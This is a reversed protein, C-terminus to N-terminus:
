SSYSWAPTHQESLFTCNWDQKFKIKVEIMTWIISTSTNEAPFATAEWPSSRHISSHCPRLTRSIGLKLSSFFIIVTKKQHLFINYSNNQFRPKRNKIKASVMLMTSPLSPNTSNCSVLVKIKPCKTLKKLKFTRSYNMMYERKSSQRFDILGIIKKM